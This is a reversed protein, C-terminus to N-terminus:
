DERPEAVTVRYGHDGVWAVMEWTGDSGFYPHSWQDYRHGVHLRILDRAVDWTAAWTGADAHRANFTGLDTITTAEQPGQGTGTPRGRLITEDTM